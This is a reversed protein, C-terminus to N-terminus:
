FASISSGCILLLCLLKSLNNEKCVLLRGMNLAVSFSCHFVNSDVNLTLHAVEARPCKGSCICFHTKNDRRSSDAVLAWISSSSFVSPHFVDVLM